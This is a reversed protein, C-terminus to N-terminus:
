RKAGSDNSPTSIASKEAPAPIPVTKAPAFDFEGKMFEPIEGGDFAETIEIITTDATIHLDKVIVSAGM